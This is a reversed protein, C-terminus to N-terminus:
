KKGKKGGQDHPVNVTATGLSSNGSTDSCIVTITYIRGSRNGSREAKLNLILDGTIEWDPATDGDGLGNEPENSNVSTIKCVPATDCTDSASVVVTVPVMKHNPPWLVNARASIASILPPTTDKVTVTTECNSSNGSGDTAVCSILTSGLPFTFGSVPICSSAGVSCNDTVTPSFFVAAGNPGTCEVIQNAPCTINPPAQDIVTVMAMCMAPADDPGVSPLDDVTLTVDTDGLAYPGLPAQVVTVPDGDPDYSGGNIVAVARCNADAPQTVDVCLAEIDNADCADGQGDCDFDAQDPNAVMPCNDLSDTLGDGDRDPSGLEQLRVLASEANILSDIPMDPGTELLQRERVPPDGHFWETCRDNNYGGELEWFPSLYWTYDVQSLNEDYRCSEFGLFPSFSRKRMFIYDFGWFDYNWLDNVKEVFIDESNADSLGAHWVNLEDMNFSVDGWHSSGLLKVAIFTTVWSVKLLEDDFCEADTPGPIPISCPLNNNNTHHGDTQTNGVLTEHAGPVTFMWVETESSEFSPIAPSFLRAREDRAYMGVYQSVLPKLIFESPSLTPDGAAPEFAIINIREIRDKIDENEPRYIRNAFRMTLVGGRSLGVLNLIVKQPTVALVDNRLFDEAEQLNTEWGRCFGWNPIGQNLLDLFHGVIDFDGQACDTGIGNIFKKKHTDDTNQWKHLTAVLERRFFGYEFTGIAQDPDWWEETLGTGAFYITAVQYTEGPLNCQVSAGAPFAISLFSISIILLIVRSLRM